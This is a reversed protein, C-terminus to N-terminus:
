GALRAEASTLTKLADHQTLNGPYEPVLVYYRSVLNLTARARIDTRKGECRGCTLVQEWGRWGQRM